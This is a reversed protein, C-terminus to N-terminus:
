TPKKKLLPVIGNLDTNGYYSINVKVYIPHATEYELERAAAYRHNGEVMTSKDPYIKVTIWSGENNWGEAALSQKLSAVKSPTTQNWHSAFDLDSAKAWGLTRATESNPRAENRFLDDPDGYFYEPKAYEKGLSSPHRRPSIM